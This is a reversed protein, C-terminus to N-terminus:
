GGMATEPIDYPNSPMRYRIPSPSSPTSPYSESDADYEYEISYREVEVRSRELCSGVVDRTAKGINWLAGM